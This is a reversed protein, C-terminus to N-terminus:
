EKSKPIVTHTGDANRRVVEDPGVERLKEKPIPGAPTIVVDGKDKQPTANEAEGRGNTTAKRPLATEGNPMMLANIAAAGGNSRPYDNIVLSVLLVVAALELLRPEVTHRSREM